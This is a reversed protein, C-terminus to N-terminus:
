LISSIKRIKYIYFYVESDLLEVEEEKYPNYDDSFPNDSKYKLGKM